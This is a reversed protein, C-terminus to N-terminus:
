NRRNAKRREKESNYSPFVKEKKYKKQQSDYNNNGSGEIERYVTLEYPMPGHSFPVEDNGDHISKYVVNGSIYLAKLVKRGTRIMTSDFLINIKNTPNSASCDELRLENYLFKTDFQNNTNTRNDATYPQEYVHRLYINNITCNRFIVDQVAYACVTCNIFSCKDFTFKVKTKYNCFLVDIIGGFVNDMNNFIVEEIHVDKILAEFEIGVEGFTNVGNSNIITM